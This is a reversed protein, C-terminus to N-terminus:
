HCVGTFKELLFRTLSMQSGHVASSFSLFQGEEGNRECTVM